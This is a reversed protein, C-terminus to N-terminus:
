SARDATADQEEVLYMTASTLTADSHDEHWHKMFESVEGLHPWGDRVTWPGYAHERHQRESGQTWRVVVVIIPAPETM